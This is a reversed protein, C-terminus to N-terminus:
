WFVHPGFPRSIRCVLSASGRQLCAMHMHFIRIKARIGIMCIHPLFDVTRFHHSCAAYAYIIMYIAMNCNSAGFFVTYKIIVEVRQITFARNKGQFSRDQVSIVCSKPRIKRSSLAARWSPRRLALFARWLSTGEPAQHFSFIWNMSTGVLFFYPPHEM